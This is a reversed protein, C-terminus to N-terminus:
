APELEHVRVDLAEGQVGEGERLADTLRGAEEWSAVVLVDLGVQAANRAVHEAAFPVPGHEATLEAREALVQAGLGATALVDVTELSGAVLDALAAPEPLAGPRPLRVVHVTGPELDVLGSLSGVTVIAGAPGGSRVRGTSPSQAKRAVLRGAEMFLGVEDGPELREDALAVCEEVHLMEGLAYDVFAKLGLFHDHLAEVGEETIRAARAEQGEFTVLGDAELQKLNYSVGQLTLDTPDVLDSARLPGERLLELLILYRVPIPPDEAM